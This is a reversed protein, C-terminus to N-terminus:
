SYVGNGSMNGVDLHPTVHGGFIPRAIQEYSPFIQTIAGNFWSHLVVRHLNRCEIQRRLSYFVLEAFAEESPYIFGDRSPASATILLEDATGKDHGATLRALEDWFTETSHSTSYNFGLEFGTRRFFDTAPVAAAMQIAYLFSYSTHAPDGDMGLLEDRDAGIIAGLIDEIEGVSSRRPPLTQGGSKHFLAYIMLGRLHSLRERPEALLRQRLAKFLSQALRRDRLGLQTCDIRVQQGDITKAVFDPPDSGRSVETWPLVGRALLHDTRYRDIHILELDSKELGLTGEHPIPWEHGIIMQLAPDPLSFGSCGVIAPPGWPLPIALMSRMQFGRPLPLPTITGQGGPRNDWFEWEPDYGTAIVKQVSSHNGKKNRKM